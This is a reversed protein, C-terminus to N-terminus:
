TSAKSGQPVAQTAVYAAMNAVIPACAQLLQAESVQQGQPAVPAAWGSPVFYLLAAYAATNHQATHKPKASHWWGRRDGVPYTYGMAFIKGYQQVWQPVAPLRGEGVRAHGVGGHKTHAGGLVVWYLAAMSRAIPASYAAGNQPLGLLHNCAWHCAMAAVGKHVATQKSATAFQAGVKAVHAATRQQQGQGVIPALAGFQRYQAAGSKTPKSSSAAKAQNTRGQQGQQQQQQQQQPQQQAM